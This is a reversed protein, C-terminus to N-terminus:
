LFFELPTILRWYRNVIHNCLTVLDEDEPDSFYDLVRERLSRPQVGEPLEKPVTPFDGLGQPEEAIQDAIFQANRQFETTKKEAGTLQAEAASRV